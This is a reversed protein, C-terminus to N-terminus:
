RDGAAAASAAWTKWVDAQTEGAAAARQLTAAAAAFEGAQAQRGGLLAQLPGDFPAHRAARELDPLYAERRETQLWALRVSNAAAVATVVGLLALLRKRRRRVA